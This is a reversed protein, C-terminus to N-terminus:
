KNFTNENNNTIDLYFHSLRTTIADWNYYQKIFIEASHGMNTALKSDELLKVVNKAFLEPTDGKLLHKGDQVELGEVGKSTSVVAKGAAMYELIKLRTGSGFRLPCICVHAKQLEVDLDEVFGKVQISSDLSAKELLWAPPNRGIITVTIDKKIQKILPHIEDLYFRIGDSNPGYSLLGMFLLNNKSVIDKHFSHQNAVGNPIVIIKEEPFYKAFYQKDVDSCTLIYNIKEIANIELKKIKRSLIRGLWKIFFGETETGSLFREYEINHADLIVPKNFMPLYKEIAFFSELEQLEILDAKKINEIEKSDLLSSRVLEIYPIKGTFLNYIRDLDNPKAILQPSYFDVTFIKRLGNLLYYNRVETGSGLSAPKTSIFAIRM